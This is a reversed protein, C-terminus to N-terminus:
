DRSERGPTGTAFAPLQTRTQANTLGTIEGRELADRLAWYAEAKLNLFREADRPASGAVFDYVDCGHDQLHTAAHYARRISLPRM